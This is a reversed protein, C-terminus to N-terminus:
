RGTERDLALNLELVNVGPEGLVGLDRGDTHEDILALVRARPLGRVRAIRAAQIRADAPSIHPDVGSASTMVADAPVDGRRLSPVYPRERRLYADARAAIQERLARSNPGENSFATADGAYETASPRSQFYRPSGGFDQGILRSGVVEGDQRLLSGGARDGFGLQAIATVALPYIVGLLVTLALVAAIAPRLERRM